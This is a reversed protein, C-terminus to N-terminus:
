LHAKCHRKHNLWDERQCTANCYPATKCRSCRKPAKPRGCHYCEDVKCLPPLSFMNLEDVFWKAMAYTPKGSRKSLLDTTDADAKEIYNNLAEEIQQQYAGHLLLTNYHQGPRHKRSLVVTQQQMRVHICHKKRHRIYVNINTAMLGEDFVVVKDGKEWQTDEVDSQCQWNSLKSQLLAYTYKQFHEALGMWCTSWPWHWFVTEVVDVKCDLVLFFYFVLRQDSWLWLMSM